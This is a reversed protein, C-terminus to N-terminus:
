LVVVTKAWVAPTTRRRSTARFWSWHKLEELLARQAALQQEMQAQQAAIQAELQKIKEAMAATDAQAPLSAALLVLGAAALIVRTFKM